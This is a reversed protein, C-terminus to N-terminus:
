RKLLSWAEVMKRQIRPSINNVMESKQLEEESPYIIKNELMAKPLLKRAERNPTAFELALAVKASNSAESIYNVFDYALEPHKTHKSVVMYDMWIEGGEKPLVYHIASNRKQLLLADGNWAQGIWTKGSVIGSEANTKFYGYTQVYPKQKNLLAIAENVAKPDESNISHGLGKLALGLGLRHIDVVMMKGRWAEKPQYFQMWSTIKEKILDSRYVIGFTGWLYPVAYEATGAWANIWRQDMQALNPVNKVGIPMIWDREAYPIVDNGNIMIVDYRQPNNMVNEDRNDSSQFYEERIKCNRSAEFKEIVEKSVYATWNYFVLQPKEAAQITAVFLIMSCSLLLLIVRSLGQVSNKGLQCM